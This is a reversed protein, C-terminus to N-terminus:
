VHIKNIQKRFIQTNKKLKFYFYTVRITSENYVEKIRTKIKEQLEHTTVEGIIFEKVKNSIILMPNFKYWVFMQISSSIIHLSNRLVQNYVFIKM